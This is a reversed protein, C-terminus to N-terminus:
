KQKLFKWNTATITVTDDVSLGLKKIKPVNYDTYKFSFSAKNLIIDAGKRTIEYDIASIPKSAGHLTLQGSAKGKTTQGDGPFNVKSKDVVLEVLGYDKKVKGTKEDKEVKDCEFAEKTHKTRLGLDLDKGRNLHASFVLKEGVEKATVGSFTGDFKGLAPKAEGQITVKGKEGSELAAHAALAITAVSLATAALAIRSRRLM